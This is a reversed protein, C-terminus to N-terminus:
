VPKRCRVVLFLGPSNRPGISEAIKLLVYLALSAPLSYVLRARIDQLFAQRAFSSQFISDVRVDTFKLRALTRELEAAQFRQVIKHELTHRAFLPHGSMADLSDASFLFEGGPKLIRHCEALVAEYDLIHELVSFSFIRDFMGETFGATQITSCLFEVHQRGKLRHLGSQAVRIYEPDPDLGVVKGAQKALCYTQKGMGCGLDLVTDRATLVTKGLLARFEYIKFPNRYFFISPFLWNYIRTLIAVHTERQEVAARRRAFRSLRETIVPGFWRYCLRAPADYVDLIGDPNMLKAQRLFDMGRDPNGFRLHYRGSRALAAAFGRSREATLKGDKELKRYSEWLITDHQALVKVYDSSLSRKLLRVEFLKEPFLQFTMGACAMRLHLDYEQAGGLEPRFGGVAVLNRKWHLPAPTAIGKKLTFLVFDHIPETHYFRTEEDRTRPAITTGESFVVDANNKLVEQIQREIKEPALVDDADLFQILEGKACEIGRNRAVSAGRNPGTEWRIRDGFSRIIGLSGDTSGDDIVIVEVPQYTQDLASQIAERVYEEANCCPIIISVLPQSHSQM